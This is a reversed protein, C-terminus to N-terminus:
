LLQLVSVWLCPQQSEPIDNSDPIKKQRIWLKELWKQEKFEDIEFCTGLKLQEEGTDWSSSSTSNRSWDSAPLLRVKLPGGSDSLDTRRKEGRGQFRRPYCWTASM